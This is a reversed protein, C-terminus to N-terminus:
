PYKEEIGAVAAVTKEDVGARAEALEAESVRLEDLKVGDFKGTLERLAEDGRAVVERLVGEVLEREGDGPVARRKLGAAFSGFEAEDFRLIKM